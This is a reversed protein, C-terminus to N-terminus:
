ITLGVKMKGMEMRGGVCSFAPAYGTTCDLTPLTLFNGGLIEMKTCGLCIETTEFLSLCFFFFNWQENEYREGRRFKLKGGGGKVIERRKKEMKGEKIAERTGKRRKKGLDRERGKKEKGGEKWFKGGFKGLTPSKGM